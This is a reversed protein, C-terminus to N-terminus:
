LVAPKRSRSFLREVVGRLHKRNPASFIANGNRKFRGTRRSHSLGYFARHGCCHYFCVMQQPKQIKKKKYTSIRNGAYLYKESRREFFLALCIGHKEDRIFFFAFIGFFASIDSRFIHKTKSMIGSNEGFILGSARFM